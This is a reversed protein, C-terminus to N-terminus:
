TKRIIHCCAIECMHAHVAWEIVPNREYFSSIKTITYIGYLSHFLVNLSEGNVPHQLFLKWNLCLVVTNKQLFLASHFMGGVDHLSGM